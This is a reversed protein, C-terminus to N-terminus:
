LIKAENKIAKGNYLEYFREKSMITTYSTIPMDNKMWANEKKKYPLFGLKKGISKSKNNGEDYGSLINEYGQSFLFDMINILAETTYGMRWYNPHTNYALEIAKINKQERDATVNGIPEMTDKLYIIWDYSEPVPIEWGEVEKLNLKVFKFEGGIDRLKRFDYEYVKQLDELTGRKLILRETEIQPTEYMM